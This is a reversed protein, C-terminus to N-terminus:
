LCCCRTCLSKRLVQVDWFFWHSVHWFTTVKFISFTTALLTCEWALYYIVYVWYVLNVSVLLGTCFRFLQPTVVTSTGHMLLCATVWGIDRRHPDSRPQWWWQDPV